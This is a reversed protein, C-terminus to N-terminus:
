ANTHSKVMVLCDCRKLVQCMSMSFTIHSMHYGELSSCCQPLLLAIVEVITFATEHHYSYFDLNLWLVSLKERSQFHGLGTLFMIVLHFGTVTVSMLWPCM